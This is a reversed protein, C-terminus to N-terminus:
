FPRTVALFVVAFMLLVPTENFLRFFTHGHAVKGENFLRVYRGCMLHYGILAAVLLLKLHMWKQAFFYDSNSFLLALGFGVALFGLLSMFRYLKTQMLCLHQRTSDDEVMAANVFLRPLYFIGAFWSIVFAIHLAKLTLM